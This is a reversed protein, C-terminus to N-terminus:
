TLSEIENLTQLLRFNEKVDHVRVIEIKNWSAWATTALTGSLRKEAKEEYIKKLFSKRSAGLLVPVGLSRFEGIKQLIEVNDNYHKGFGIGPDIIIRDKNIGNQQCFKIRNQLFTLIEQIVDNYHPNKQMNRPTGQMHMLIIPVNPFQNLVDIMKDDFRLASIDNVIDAGALIAQKAVEAKNTDISIIADSKNRIAKLVPIIRELEQASSVPQAGPRTSEGGIDIIEAGERVMQLAHEVAKDKDTYRDGDSFSDPTVNLIGMIKTTDLKLEKGRCNLLTPQHSSYLKLLEKIKVELDPLHFKHYNSLDLKQLQARNGMLIVDTSQLVGEVVGAAVAADGGLKLMEQKLINAAGIEIDCLKINLNQMKGCMAEIGRRSVGIKQLELKATQLNNITLIRDM